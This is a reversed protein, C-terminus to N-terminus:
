PMRLPVTSHTRSESPLEGEWTMVLPIERKTGVGGRSYRVDVWVSCGGVHGDVVLGGREEGASVIGRRAAGDVFWHGGGCAAIGGMRGVGGEGGFTHGEHVVGAGM